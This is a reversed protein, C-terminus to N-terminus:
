AQEAHAAKDHIRTTGANAAHRESPIAPSRTLALLYAPLMLMVSAWLFQMAIAGTVWGSEKTMSLEADM